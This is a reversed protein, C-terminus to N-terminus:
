QNDDFERLCKCPFEGHYGECWCDAYCPETVEVEVLLGLDQAKDQMAFEDPGPEGELIASLHESLSWRGFEMLKREKETM